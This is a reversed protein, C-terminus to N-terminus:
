SRRKVPVEGEAPVGRVAMDGLATTLEVDVDAKVHMLVGKRGFVLAQVVDAFVDQDTIKLPANEVRSSVALTPGEHKSAPIRTSNAHQWKHLDLEGLKRAKYFVDANARVRSISINFNMEEPLAVTAQINASIRPNSEPSNEDAFPSPLTFHTDALDFDKVLHGFTRGPLPVPATISHLLTTIWDPTHLQPASSGRIYITTDKGHIYKGLILDLPSQGSGPCEQTLPDPLQHVVATVNVEVEQNPQVRLEHTEVDALKIYPEDEHCNDVLAAFALPPVTLEVPYPNEVIVSADAAMGKGGMPLEIERFMLKKIDYAPVSPIDKNAFLLEHRILQQGLSVIGSKLPVNAKGLVRLQGLRGDIWDNAIRRIGDVDGAHLDSLVDVHTRHGDRLDVKVGPVQATGLVVNGYEPLSVEVESAGSEAEKALGTFFRGLNRVSKTRVRQADLTFDGQIRARVGSATFSDISLSTPEFVAAEQGYQEVTSPALFAFVIILIVLM